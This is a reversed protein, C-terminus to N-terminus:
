CCFTTMATNPAAGFVVELEKELLQRLAGAVKTSVGGVCWRQLEGDNKTAARIQVPISAVFASM